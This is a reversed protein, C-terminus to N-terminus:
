ELILAYRYIPMGGPATIVEACPCAEQLAAFADEADQASTELGPLAIVVDRSAADLAQVLQALAEEPTDAACLVDETEADYGIFQGPQLSFGNQVAQRSVPSVLGTVVGDMGDICGQVVTEEDGSSVDLMSLAAYGAGISKTKIVRVHAKQYLAAAQEAAMIINGNNPFVLIVDANVTAFAALFDATSPNMSQGGDVVADAGSERFLNQIGEGAAVAVTAFQKHKVVPGDFLAGYTDDNQKAAPQAPAQAESHQLTMNEVKLTLFEGYKQMENLIEGPHMTHVHAKLISGDVFCVVSNGHENLFRTVPGVDFANIDTKASQLRLLFETCYGYTLTDDTGFLSLDTKVPAHESAAADTEEVAADGRLVAQMGRVICLFGAGGSDVVGAQKLVELLEPTHDLAARAAEIYVNFWEDFTLAANAQLVEVAAEASCRMVTLVTGEVPKSVAAYAEKVGATVAANWAGVDANQAGHLAKAIGAFFRSLIVGSNGRAGLLMGHAAAEAAAGIANDLPAEAGGSITMYMNDGTDGDPVPFVNLDNISDRHRRLEAAGGRVMALYVTGDFATLANPVNIVNNGANM